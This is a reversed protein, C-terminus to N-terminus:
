QQTRYVIRQNLPSFQKGSINRRKLTRCIEHRQKNPNYKILRHSIVRLCVCDDLNLHNGRDNVKWRM